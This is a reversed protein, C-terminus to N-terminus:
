GSGSQGAAWDYLGFVLCVSLVLFAAVGLYSPISLILNLGALMNSLFYVSVFTFIALFRKGWDSFDVGFGLFSIGDFSGVIGTVAATIVVTAITTIGLLLLGTGDSTLMVLFMSLGVPLGILIKDL